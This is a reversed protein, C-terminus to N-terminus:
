WVVDDGGFDRISMRLWSGSENRCGLQNDRYGPDLAILQTVSIVVRAGFPSNMVREINGCGFMAGHEGGGVTLDFSEEVALAAALSEILQGVILPDHEIVSVKIFVCGADGLSQAHTLPVDECVYAVGAIGPRSVIMQM